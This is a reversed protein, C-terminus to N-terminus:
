KERMFHMKVKNLFLRYGIFMDNFFSTKNYPNEKLGLIVESKSDSPNYWSSFIRDWFIFMNGFNKDHHEASASHHIMHAAPSVLIYKGIWGWNWNVESHIFLQHAERILIVSLYVKAPVGLLIFLGADFLSIFAVELFHGRQSTIMNLHEASHHYKHLEWFWGIKHSLFHRIYHKLDSIIFVISFQLIPDAIYQVLHLDFSKVLMSLLVYFIGFSFILVFLNYLQFVGLLWCWLDGTASGDQKILLRKLSSKQWGTFLAETLLCAATLVLNAFLIKWSFESWGAIRKLNYFLYPFIDAPNALIVKVRDQYHVYFLMASFGFVLLVLFFRKINKSKM